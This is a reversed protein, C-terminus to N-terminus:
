TTAKSSATHKESTVADPRGAAPRFDRIAAEYDTRHRLLLDRAAIFASANDATM